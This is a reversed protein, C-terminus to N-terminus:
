PWMVDPLSGFSPPEPDPEERLTVQSGAAVMAAIDDEFSAPTAEELVFGTMDADTSPFAGPTGEDDEFYEPWAQVATIVGSSVAASLVMDRRARTAANNDLFLLIDLAAEQVASL